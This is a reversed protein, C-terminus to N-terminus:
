PSVVICATDTAALLDGHLSYGSVKYCYQGTPAVSYDVLTTAMVRALAYGNREVYFQYVDPDDSWDVQVAAPGVQTLRIALGTIPPPPPPPPAAVFATVELGGGCGVLATALGVTAISILVQRIM